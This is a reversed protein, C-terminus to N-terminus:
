TVNKDTDILMVVISMDPNGSSDILGSNFPLWNLGSDITFYIGNTTGAVLKSGSCGLATVTDGSLGINTWNTLIGQAMGSTAIVMSLFFVIKKM